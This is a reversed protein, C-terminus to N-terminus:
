KGRPLGTFRKNFAHGKVVHKKNVEKPREYKAKEGKIPHDVQKKTDKVEAMPKEPLDAENTVEKENYDKNENKTNGVEKRTLKDNEPQGSVKKTVDKQNPANRNFAKGVYNGDENLKSKVYEKLMKPNLNFKRERDSGDKFYIVDFNEKWMPRIDFYHAGCGRVTFNGADNAILIADKNYKKVEEFVDEVIAVKSKSKEEKIEELSEQILKKLGRKAKEIKVEEISEKILGKLAKKVREDLSGTPSNPAIRSIDRVYLEKENGDEDSGWFTDDNIEEVYFENGDNMTVLSGPRLQNGRNEDLDSEPSNSDKQPGNYPSVFKNMGGSLVGVGKDSSIPPVLKGADPVLTSAMPNDGLKLIIADKVAPKNVQIYTLHKMKSHNYFINKLREYLIDGVFLKSVDTEEEQAAYQLEKNDIQLGGKYEKTVKDVAKLVDVKISEEEADTEAGGGLVGGLPDGAENVGGDLQKKLAWYKKKAQGAGYHDGKDELYEIENSLREIEKKLKESDVNEKINAKESGCAPCKHNSGAMDWTRGGCAFCLGTKSKKSGKAEVICEKVLAIFESKKM